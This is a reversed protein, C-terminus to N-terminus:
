PDKSDLHYRNLHKVIDSKQKLLDPNLTLTIKKVKQKTIGQAKLYNHIQQRIDEIHFKVEQLTCANEVYIFLNGRHLRVPQNFPLDKLEKTLDKWNQFLKLFLWEPSDPRAFPSKLFFGKLMKSLLVPKKQSSDKM